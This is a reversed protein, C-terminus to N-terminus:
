ALSRRSLGLGAIGLILLLLTAPEPLEVATAQMGASRGKPPKGGGGATGNMVSDIWSNFYTVRTWGGADGYDSDPDGDLRGWGFSTIGTLFERGDIQEFLGGGSDGPGIMSELPLPSGSGFNNDASLGSDFDALLIRNTGGATRLVADVMNEGARKLGDFTTAGTSGTGTMGFGVETGIRGLESTGSYREAACGGISSSFSIGCGVGTGLHFLGIDYGSNLDGTWKSYSYWRDASVGDRTAFSSWGGGSDLYFKLSLAGSTVHAATLVWDPSILVGSAAFGGSSDTGYIQGVSNYRTTNALDIYSSDSTGDRIVIAAAPGALTLGGIMAIMVPILKSVM